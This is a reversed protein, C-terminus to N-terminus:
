RISPCTTREKIPKLKLDEKIACFSAYQDIYTQLFSLGKIIKKDFGGKTNNGKNIRIAFGVMCKEYQIEKQEEAKEKGVMRAFTARKKGANNTTKETGTGMPKTKKRASEKKRERGKERLTTRPSRRDEQRL